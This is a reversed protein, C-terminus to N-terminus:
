QAAPQRTLRFTGTYGASTFFGVFEKENARGIWDFVGGDKEGLDASGQFLVVGGAERGMMKITYKYPRGCEGEFTAQYRGDPLAVVKCDMAKCLEPYMMKKLAPPQEGNKGPPSYMGWDGSWTGAVALTQKVAPRIERIADKNPEQARLAGAGALVAAVSAAAAARVLLSKM